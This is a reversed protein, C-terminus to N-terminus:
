IPPVPVRAYNARISITCGSVGVDHMTAAVRVYRTQNTITAPVMVANEFTGSFAISIIDSINGAASYSGNGVFPANALVVFRILTGESSYSFETAPGRNPTGGISLTSLATEANAEPGGNACEPSSSEVNLAGVWAGFYSPDQANASSVSAFIAVAVAIVRIIHFM